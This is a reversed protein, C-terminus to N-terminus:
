LDINISSRYAPFFEPDILDNESSDRLHNQVLIDYMNEDVVYKWIKFDKFKKSFNSKFAFLSDENSGRGGGLNLYQFGAKTSKIRMEDIILKICSPEQCDERLASLHYQVFPGKEIFLAGGQISGSEKHISLLLKATFDESSILQKFYKDNFYYKEQANVRRMTEEYLDMFSNLHDECNSEIVTCTKRSTNIYTKMRRNYMKKQNEVTEKLDVYVVKGLTKITGLGELLSEQYDLYPHLRSFVSVINQENFFANLERHFKEKSFGANTELALLGVYGYVSIADKYNTNEIPRLLLPLGITTSEDTYKILLPVEGDNKSLQHYDYTHYFDIHGINALFENWHKKDKIVEIM